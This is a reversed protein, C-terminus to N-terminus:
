DLRLTRAFGERWAKSLEAVPVKLMGHIELSDGGVAGLAAFPVGEAACLKEIAKLQGAAFSIVARTADEGFLWAHPAISEPIKTNVVVGMPKQGDAICSEALTVALGGESCDHTSHV